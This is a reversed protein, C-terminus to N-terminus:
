TQTKAFRDVLGENTGFPVIDTTNQYGQTALSNGLTGNNFFIPLLLCDLRVQRGQLSYSRRTFPFVQEAIHIVLSQAVIHLLRQIPSFRIMLQTTGNGGNIAVLKTATFSASM